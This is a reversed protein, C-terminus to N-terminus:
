SLKIKSIDVGEHELLWIKTKIGEAASYGGIKGNSAIVRHCPIIIPIQNKSNASGAARQAKKNGAVKALEAYSIIEGIKLNLLAKYVKLAFPTAWTTDLPLDFKTLKKNFYAEIQNKAELLIENKTKYDKFHNIFDLKCIGFKNATIEIIGVPSKIHIIQM